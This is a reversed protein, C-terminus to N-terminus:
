DSKTKLLVVSCPAHPIVQRSVSGLLFKGIGKRGHAGMLLLDAEFKDAERVIESKTAGEVVATEVDVGPFQDILSEAITRVLIDADKLAGPDPESFVSEAPDVVHFVRLKLANTNLQVLFARIEKEFLLDEVAILIRTIMKEARKDLL